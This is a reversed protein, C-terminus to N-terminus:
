LARLRVYCNTPLNVLRETIESGGLPGDIAEFAFHWTLLTVTTKLQILAQRRGFCQRPGTSFALNPGAQHNFVVSAAADDGKAGAGGRRATALWREPKYADIDEDDWAPVNGKLERRAEADAGPKERMPLAPETLSPGSLPLIVDIGKPIHYGLIHTDRTTRRVILTAVSCCRLTEEVVADLYPISAGSIEDASPRRGESKATAHADDLAHRLRAQVDQHQAM